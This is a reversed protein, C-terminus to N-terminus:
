PSQFRDAFIRDLMEDAGIDFPTSVGAASNPIGRTENDMDAYQPQSVSDDCFDVAPSDPHLHFDGNEPDLFMPDAVVSRTSQSVSDLESAITCDLDLPSNSSALETDPIWILSSRVNTTSAGFFVPFRPVDDPRDNSTGNITSWAMNVESNGSTWFLPQGNLNVDMVVGELEMTHQGTQVDFGDLEFVPIVFSSQPTYHQVFTQTIRVSTSEGEVRILRGTNDRLRSCPAPSLSSEYRRCDTDPGREIVVEAGDEALIVFGDHQAIDSDVARFRSDSGTIYVASIGMNADNGILNASSFPDGPTIFGPATGDLTMQSNNTGYLGGGRTASNGVIGQLFGGALSVFACNSAYVGGGNEGADNNGILGSDFIVIHQAGGDGICAMGGGNDTASNQGISSQDLMLVVAGSTDTSHAVRMGGGNSATASSRISVNRLIVVLGGRIDLGGALGSGSGNRIILNELEISTSDNQSLLTLVTASNNGDLISQGSPQSSSCDPYGGILELSKDGAVFPGSYSGSELRIEANSQAATLAAGLSSFDCAAGSGVSLIESPGGRDAELLASSRERAKNLLELEGKSLPAQASIAQSALAALLAITNFRIM